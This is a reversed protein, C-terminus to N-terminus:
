FLHQKVKSRSFSCPRPLKCKPVRAHQQQMMEVMQQESQQVRRIQEEMKLKKLEPEKERLEGGAQSRARLFATMDNGSRKFKIYEEGGESLRRKTQALGRRHGRGLERQKSGTQMLRGETTM